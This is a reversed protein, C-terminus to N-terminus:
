AIATGNTGQGHDTTLLQRHGRAVGRAWASDFEKATVGMLSVRAIHRLCDTRHGQPVGGLEWLASQLGESLSEFSESYCLTFAEWNSYTLVFHYILHAFTRGAITVGLPTMHSFDSQCLQGPHHVQAFYVEQGPGELGRWRKVQRQLTRLQGDAFHGGHARQLAELLTKAELGPNLSLQEVVWPWVAVFPNARTRWGHDTRLVSPLQGAMRYKRATGRDMGAKDASVQLSQGDQLLSVLRRMQRDTVMSQVGKRHTWVM